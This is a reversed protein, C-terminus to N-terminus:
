SPTSRSIFMATSLPLSTTIRPFRPTKELTSRSLPNQLITPLVKSNSTVAYQPSKATPWVSPPSTSPLSAETASIGKLNPTSSLVPSM